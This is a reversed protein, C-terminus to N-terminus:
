STSSLVSQSIQGRSLPLPSPSRAFPRNCTITHTEDIEFWCSARTSRQIARYGQESQNLTPNMAPNMAPLLQDFVQRSPTSLNGNAAFVPPQHSPLPCRSIPNAFLLTQLAPRPTGKSSASPQIVLCGPAEPLPELTGIDPVPAGPILPIEPQTARQFQHQFALQRPFPPPMFGPPPSPLSPSAFTPLMPWPQAWSGAATFLGSLAVWVVGRRM